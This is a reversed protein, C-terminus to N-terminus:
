KNVRSPPRWLAPPAWPGLCPLRSLRGHGSRPFAPTPHQCTCDRRVQFPQSASLSSLQPLPPITPFLRQFQPAPPTSVSAYQPPPYPLSLQPAPAVPSHISGWPEAEGPRSYREWSGLGVHVPSSPPSAALRDPLLLQFASDWNSKQLQQLPVKGSESM